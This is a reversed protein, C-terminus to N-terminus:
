DRLIKEFAEVSSIFRDKEYIVSEYFGSVAENFELLMESDEASFKQFINEGYLRDPYNESLKNVWTYHNEYYKITALLYSFEDGLLGVSLRERKYEDMSEISEVMQLFSKRTLRFFFLMKLQVLYDKLNRAKYIADFNRWHMVFFQLNILVNSSRLDYKAQRKLNKRAEEEQQARRLGDSRAIFATVVIAAISGFAQVWGALDQSNDPVWKSLPRLNPFATAIACVVIILYITAVFVLEWSFKFKKDM